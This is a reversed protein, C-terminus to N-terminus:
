YFVFQNYSETAETKEGFKDIEIAEKFAVKLKKIKDRPLEM